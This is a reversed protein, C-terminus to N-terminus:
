CRVEVVICVLNMTRSKPAYEEEPIWIVFGELLIKSLMSLRQLLLTTTVVFPTVTVISRNNVTSINTCNKEGGGGGGGGGIRALLTSSVHNLWSRQQPIDSGVVMHLDQSLTTLRQPKDENDKDERGGLLNGEFLYCTHNIQVYGVGLELSCVAVREVM